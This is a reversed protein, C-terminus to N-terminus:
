TAVWLHDALRPVVDRGRPHAPMDIGARAYHAGAPARMRGRASVVLQGTRPSLVTHPRSHHARPVM